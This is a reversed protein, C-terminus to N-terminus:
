EYSLPNEASLILASVKVRLHWKRCLGPISKLCLAKYNFSQNVQEVRHLREIIESIASTCTRFSPLSVLWQFFARLSQFYWAIKMVSLVLKTQKTKTKKKLCCFWDSLFVMHFFCPKYLLLLSPEKLYIITTKFTLMQKQISRELATNSVSTVWCSFFVHSLAYLIM